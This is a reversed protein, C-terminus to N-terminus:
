LRIVLGIAFLNSKIDAFESFTYTTKLYLRNNIKFKIYPSIGFTPSMTNNDTSIQEGIFGKLGYSLNKYVGEFRINVATANYYKPSFYGGYEQGNSSYINLLNKSYGLNYSTVDLDIKQIYPNHPNNYIRKGINVYGSYGWNYPLNYGNILGTIARISAYYDNKMRYSAEIFARNNTARGSFGDNEIFTGVATLYSQEISDRSLGVKVKLKDNVNYKVWADGLLLPKGSTEYFKGAISARYELNPKPHSDTSLKIYNVLCRDFEQNSSTYQIMRYDLNIKSDKYNKENLIGWKQYDLDYEDSLDQALLGYFPTTTYLNERRLSDKYISINPNDINKIKEEASNMMGLSAYIIAILINKEDSDQLKETLLFAELYYENLYKDYIEKAINKESEAFQLNDLVAVGKLFFDKDIKKYEGKTQAEISAVDDIESFANAPILTLFITFIFIIVRKM